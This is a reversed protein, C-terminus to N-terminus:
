RTSVVITTLITTTDANQFSCVYGIAIQICFYALDKPATMHTCPVRGNESEDDIDMTTQQEVYVRAHVHM